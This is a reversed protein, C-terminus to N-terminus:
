GRIRDTSRPYKLRFDNLNLSPNKRITGSSLTFTSTDDNQETVRAQRPMGDVDVWIEAMKYNSKVKPKLQIRWTTVGGGIKEEGLYTLSYNAKIEAKSMSMFSLIGPVKPNGKAMQAKGFIVRNIRPRYLEYEDGVISIQEQVPDIWDIRVGLKGKVSKSLYSMRGVMTDPIGLNSNFKVMTVDATMTKLANNHADMRNLIEGLINQSRGEAVLALSALLLIAVAFM